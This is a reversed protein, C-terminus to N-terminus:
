DFGKDEIVAVLHHDYCQWRKGNHRWANTYVAIKGKTLQAIQSGSPMGEGIAAGDRFDERLYRVHGVTLVDEGIRQAEVKVWVTDMAEIAKDLDIMQRKDVILTPWPQATGLFDDAFFDELWDHRKEAIADGWETYIRRFEESLESDSM